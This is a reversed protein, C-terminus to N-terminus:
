AAACCSSIAPKSFDAQEQFIGHLASLLERAGVPKTLLARVGLREANMEDEPSFYGSALLVPIDARVNRLERALQLGSMAPMSLDTVVADFVEPGQRFQRLAAEVSSLGTVRYGKQELAATGVFVLVPDDDVFLVHEGHGAPACFEAVRVHEVAGPVAPFYIQFTSGKGKESDVRLIGRHAAVIGQVVSLGLGTGKGAPKTTFFPDFIREVTAADMGCGNDSVSLRVYHGPPIQSYLHVEKERVVPADLKVEILGTTDGIAHAANTTLNLIVQCVQTGDARALPLEQDHTYRIAIMAPLTARALKLTEQALPDLDLEQLNQEQPKSFSLIRRVLDAARQGAKEIEVLRAQVPHESPLQLIALAASGSIAALINNFDHAIGAALTGLAEVKQSRVQLSEARKLATIDASVELTRVPKGNSDRYLVWQSAVVVRHGDRTRHVLEGEWSGQAEFTKRIEEFQQPFETQLLEHVIKGLAETKTFGYIREAGRTWLVIRNEIDRVLAPALDLLSAQQRIEEEVHKRQTIDRAIKSAGIVRGSTDRLPSITVAVDIWRGDKRIRQSEFHEITEGKAIRNLIEQEEERREPPFFDAMCKGIAEAATYGFVREAAPNWSTIVGDLTKSIIADDSSDVIAALKASTEAAKTTESADRAIAALLKRSRVRIKSLLALRGFASPMPSRFNRWFELWRRGPDIHVAGPASGDTISM